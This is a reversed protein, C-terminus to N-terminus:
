RSRAEAVECVVTYERADRVITLKVRSGPAVDALAKPLAASNELIVGNLGAIVDGPQLGSKEAPSGPLVQTIMGGVPARLGLQRALEPTLAMTSVGLTQRQVRGTRLISEMSQKAVNAPIAFSIGLWTGTNASYIASNIGIVEGRFNLLPGGSNGQNVAADTQLFEVGSDRVARGKASVIGQTVTEQFGFPNGVALVPQGVRVLDSDGFHLAAVPGKIKLVAIDTGQDSGVLDAHEIRGDSLQVQIESMGSIVHHNTLIYGESSVIVGSGLGTKTQEVVRERPGFILDFADLVYPVRQKIKTQTTISVVAPVVSKVLETYDAELAALAPFRGVAVPSPAAGSSSLASSAKSDLSSGSHKFPRLQAWGFMGILVILWLFVWKRPM